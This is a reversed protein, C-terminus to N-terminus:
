IPDILFSVGGVGQGWGSGGGWGWGWGWGWGDARGVQAGGGTQLRHVGLLGCFFRFGKVGSFGRYM